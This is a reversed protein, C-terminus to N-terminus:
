KPHFPIFKAEKRSNLISKVDEEKPSIFEKTEDRRQIRELRENSYSSDFQMEYKRLLHYMEPNSAELQKVEMSDRIVRARFIVSDRVLADPSVYPNMSVTQLAAFANETTATDSEIMRMYATSMMMGNLIRDCLVAIGCVQLSDWALVTANGGFGNALAYAAKTRNLDIQLYALGTRINETKNALFSRFPIISNYGVEPAIEQVRVTDQLVLKAQIASIYTMFLSSWEYKTLLAQYDQELDQGYSTTVVLSLVLCLRILM